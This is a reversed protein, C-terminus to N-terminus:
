LKVGPFPNSELDGSRLLDTLRARNLRQPVHRDVGRAQVRAMGYFFEGNVTVWRPLRIYGAILGQLIEATGFGTDQEEHEDSQWVSGDETVEHFRYKLVGSM